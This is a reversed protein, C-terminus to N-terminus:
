REVVCWRFRGGDLLRRCIVLVLVVQLFSLLWDLHLLRNYGYIMVPFIALLGLGFFIILPLFVRKPIVPTLGMLGYILLLLFFAIFSLIGSFGDLLHQGGFLVLSDDLVSVAGTALFVGLCLSLCVAVFNRFSAPKGAQEAPAKTIVPPVAGAGAMPPGNVTPNNSAGQPNSDPPVAPEGPSNM